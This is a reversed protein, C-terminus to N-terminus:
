LNKGWIIHHKTKKLMKVGFIKEYDHNFCYEVKPEKFPEIFLLKAKPPFKIKIIDEHPVHLLCTYTFYMDYGEPVENIINCAFFDADHKMQSNAVLRESIDCGSYNKIYEAWRGTGCGIELVKDTQNFYKKIIDWDKKDTTKYKLWTESYKDWFNQPDYM